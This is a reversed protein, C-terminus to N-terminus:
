KFIVPGQCIVAVMRIYVTRCLSTSLTTELPSKTM